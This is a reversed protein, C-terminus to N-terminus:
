ALNHRMLFLDHIPKPIGVHEAMKPSFWQGENHIFEETVYLRMPTFKLKFHSFVHQQPTLSDLLGIQSISHEKLWATLATKTKFIPVSWLGGWLRKEKRQQLFLEGKPNILVLFYRTKVPLTKKPKKGPYQDVTGQEFALCQPKLPCQLCLPTTRSCISAGLDMMAQTYDDVRYKPVLTDSKEWLAHAVAGKGPFGAIAFTRALVRKVNGDLIALPQKLTLALIASATSRGIGPLTLLDNLNEPFQGNYDVMIKQAASHLNRARAYYGLGSWCSLVTNETAEALSELTPFRQMFQTYYPIVTSVQTQQLMIESVWVSYLTKNQQWPLDRRGHQDFWNLLAHHFSSINLHM